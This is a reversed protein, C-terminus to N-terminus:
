KGGKKDQFCGDWSRYDWLPPWLLPWGFSSGNKNKIFLFEGGQRGALHIREKCVM